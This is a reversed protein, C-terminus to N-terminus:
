RDSELGHLFEEDSCRSRTKVKEEILTTMIPDLEKDHYPSTIIEIITDDLINLLYYNAQVMPYKKQFLWAYGALQLIHTADLGGTVCKFEWISLRGNPDIKLSDSTSGDAAGVLVDLRGSIVRPIDNIVITQTLDVEYLAGQRPIYKRVVSLAKDVTAWSLWNYEEIQKTKFIYGAQLANYITSLRLFDQIVPKGAPMFRCCLEIVSPRDDKPLRYVNKEVHTAISVTKATKHEYIAPLCIGNIDFVSEEGNTGPTSMPMAIPEALQFASGPQITRQEHAVEMYCIRALLKQIMTESLHRTLETISFKSRDSKELSKPDFRKPMNLQTIAPILNSKLFPMYCNKSDHIIILHEKARTIAVYIENPCIDPPADRNFFMFYSEDFGFLMVIARELGKTQHISSIVLKGNIITDKLMEDDSTPAFCPYGSAVLMNELRKVPTKSSRVSPAVVFVDGPAYPGIPRLLQKLINFPEPGFSNCITYQVKAGAKNSVIVDKGVCIKNVFEAMPKTIRFSQQLPLTAWEPVLAEFSGWIKDALTLFRDDADKFAYINQRPDGFLCIQRKKDVSKELKKERPKTSATSTFDFDDDGVKKEEVKEEEFEDDFTNETITSDVSETELIHTYTEDVYETAIEYPEGTWVMDRIIKRAFRYYVGTQDQVEDLIVIDFWFNQKPPTDNAIVALIGGDKYCAGSYYKVGFSHYSHAETNTIDLKKIRARTEAKLRANYSITLIRKSPDVARAIHMMTTTKGSGAVASVIVNKGLIVQEVVAQQENSPPLLAM